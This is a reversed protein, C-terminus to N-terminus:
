NARGLCRIALEKMITSQDEKPAGLLQEFARIFQEQFDILRRANYKAASPVLRGLYWPNQTFVNLPNKETADSFHVSRKRAIRDLVDKNLRSRPDIEGSDILVRLQIALRNRGQLSSLLPRSDKAHFFHRDIAELTWALDGSAFAEAAEFFDAEGFDPVLDAVLQETIETEKTGLYTAIKQTEEAALRTNAGIKAALMDVAGPAFIVGYEKAADSVTRRFAADGKEGKSVDEYRSNKQLWKVFSHNRHVPCASLIVQSDQGISNLTEKATELSDKTGQSAGTRTQNLFNVENLWVLKGGGFLSLTEVASRTEKLIRQADEVRDARGDVIERSLDDPYHELLSDFVEKAKLRVLFDDDGVIAHLQGDSM